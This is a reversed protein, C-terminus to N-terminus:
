STAFLIPARYSYLTFYNNHKLNAKNFDLIASPEQLYSFESHLQIKQSARIYQFIKHNNSLWVTPCSQSWFLCHSDAHNSSQLDKEATQVWALNHSNPIINARKGYPIFVSLKTVFIPHTGNQPWPLPYNLKLYSCTCEWSLVTRLTIGPLTLMLFSSVFLSISEWYFIIFTLTILMLITLLIAIYHCNHMYM